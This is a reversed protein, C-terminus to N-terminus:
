ANAAPYKNCTSLLSSSACSMTVRYRSGELLASNSCATSVPRSEGWAGVKTSLPRPGRSSAVAAVVEEEEEEEKNPAEIPGDDDDSDDSDADIDSGTCFRRRM